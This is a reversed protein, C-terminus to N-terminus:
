NSTHNQEYGQKIEKTTKDCHINTQMKTQVSLNNKLM